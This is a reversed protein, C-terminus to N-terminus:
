FLSTKVPFSKVENLFSGNRTRALVNKENLNSRKKKKKKGGVFKREKFKWKM